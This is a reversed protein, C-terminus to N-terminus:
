VILRKIRVDQQCSNWALDFLETLAKNRQKCNKNLVWTQEHYDSRYLFFTTDSLLYAHQETISHDAFSRIEMSSTLKQSLRILAHGYHIAEDINQVVLQIRAHRNGRAFAMISDTILENDYIDAELTPTFIKVTRLSHRIIQSINAQVDDLTDLIVDEDTNGYRLFRPLPSGHQTLNDM